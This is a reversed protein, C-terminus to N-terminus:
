IPISEKELFGLEKESFAEPDLPILLIGKYRYLVERIVYLQKLVQDFRNHVVLYELGDLLIISGEKDFVTESIIYVLKHLQTPFLVDDKEKQSLWLVPVKLNYVAKVRPPNRRTILLGNGNKVTRAFLAYSREVNRGKLIYITGKKLPPLNGEDLDASFFTGVKMTARVMVLVFFWLTNEIQYSHIM